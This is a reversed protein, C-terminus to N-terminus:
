IPYHQRAKLFNLIENRPRGQAQIPQDQIENLRLLNSCRNRSRRSGYYDFRESQFCVFVRQFNADITQLQKGLRTDSGIAVCNKGAMAVM